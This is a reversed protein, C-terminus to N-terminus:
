AVSPELKAQESQSRFSFYPLVGWEELPAIQQVLATSVENAVTLLRDRRSAADTLIVMFFVSPEGTSDDGFEHQIRVVNPRLQEAVQSVATAFQGQRAFAKPVIM